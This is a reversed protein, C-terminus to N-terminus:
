ARLRPAALRPAPPGRSLRMGSIAKGCFASRSTTSSSAAKFLSALRSGCALRRTSSRNKAPSEMSSVATTIPLDGLVTFRSQDAARAQSRRSICLPESFHGRLAPLFYLHHESLRELLFGRLPSGVEVVLTRVGGEAM